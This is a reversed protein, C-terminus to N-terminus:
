QLRKTEGEALTFRIASGALRELTDRRTWSGVEREPIPTMCYDGPPLGRVVFAGSPDVDRLVFRRSGAVWLEASAPFIALRREPAAITGSIETQVDSLTLVIGDIDTTAASLDPPFDLLDRGDLGASRLRWVDGLPGNVSAELRFPGPLVGGIAFAGDTGTSASFRASASGVLSVRVIAVAPSPPKGRGQFVVRGSVVLSPRLVLSVGDVDADGVDLESSAWLSRRTSSAGLASLAASPPRGSAVATTLPSVRATVIYRGPPVNAISFAGTRDTFAGAIRTGGLATEVSVQAGAGPQGDPGSVVGLVRHAGRLVLQFDVGTREEGVGLGVKTADALATTGPYYVTAPSRGQVLGRPGSADSSRPTGAIDAAAPSGTATGSGGAARSAARRALADLAADVDADSLTRTNGPILLIPPTAAM